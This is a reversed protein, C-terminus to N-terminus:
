TAIGVGRLKGRAAAEERRAPFSSWRSVELAKTLSADHDGSDYQLMVPTQYPFADRPIFNRRRIEVRDIGLNRSAVDVLRELVLTAEPRGAGRYANTTNPGFTSVYGGINALISVRLGLFKGDRDLALEAHTVHDCGQADSQFSESRDAV